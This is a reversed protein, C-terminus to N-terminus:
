HPRGSAFKAQLKKLTYANGIRFFERLKQSEEDDGYGLGIVTLKTRGASVEDFYLVTWNNKLAGKFPFKEPPKTARIAVMREPDFCLITNEITNPDGIQGDPDYHTLMKGGVRLDIDAHAVNWSEQGEKTTFARWVDGVPAEIIGETIQREEGAAATAAALLAALAVAVTLRPSHAAPRLAHCAHM